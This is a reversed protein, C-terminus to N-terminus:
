GKERRGDKKGVGGSTEKMVEQERREDKRKRGDKRVRDERGKGRKGNKRESDGSEKRRRGEYGDM